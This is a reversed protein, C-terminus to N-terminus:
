KSELEVNVGEVKRDSKKKEPFQEALWAGCDTDGGWPRRTLVEGSGRVPM